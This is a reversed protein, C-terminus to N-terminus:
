QVNEIQDGAVFPQFKMMTDDTSENPQLTSLPENISQVYEPSDNKEVDGDIKDFFTVIEERIKFFMFEQNLEVSDINIRNGLISYKTNEQNILQGTFKLNEEIHKILKQVIKNKNKIESENEESDISTILSIVQQLSFFCDPQNTLTQLLKQKNM